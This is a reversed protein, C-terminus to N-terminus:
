ENQVHKNTESINLDVIYSLSISIWFEIRGKTPHWIRFAFWKSALENEQEYDRVNENM